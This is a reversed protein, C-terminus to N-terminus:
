KKVNEKERTLSIKISTLFLKAGKETLPRLHHHLLKKQKTM